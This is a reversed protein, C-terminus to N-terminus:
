LVSSRSKVLRVWALLELGTQILISAMECLSSAQHGDMRNSVRQGIFECYERPSKPRFGEQSEPIVRFAREAIRVIFKPKSATPRYLHPGCSRSSHCQPLLLRKHRLAALAYADPLTSPYPKLTRFV